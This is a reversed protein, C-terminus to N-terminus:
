LAFCTKSKTLVLYGWIALPIVVALTICVPIMSSSLISAWIGTGFIVVSLWMLLIGFPREAEALSYKKSNLRYFGVISCAVVGGICLTYMIDLPDTSPMKIQWVVLALTIIGVIAAIIYAALSKFKKM